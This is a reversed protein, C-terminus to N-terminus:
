MEIRSLPKKCKIYLWAGLVLFGISAISWAEVKLAIIWAHGSPPFNNMWFAMSLFSPTIFGLACLAAASLWREPFFRAIFIGLIVAVIITPIQLWILGFWGALMTSSVEAIWKAVPRRLDLAIWLNSLVWENILSAIIGIVVPFIIRKFKM